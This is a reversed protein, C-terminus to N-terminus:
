GSDAGCHAACGSVPAYSGIGQGGTEPGQDSPSHSALVWCAGTSACRKTAFRGFTSPQTVDICNVVPCIFTAQSQAVGVGDVLGAIM